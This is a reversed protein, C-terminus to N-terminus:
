QQRNIHSHNICPMLEEKVNMKRYMRNYIYYTHLYLWNDMYAIRRDIQRFSRTHTADSEIADADAHIAVATAATKRFGFDKCTCYAATVTTQKSPKTM